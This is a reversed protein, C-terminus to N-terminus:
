QLCHIVQAIEDATNYIHPSLRLGLARRDFAVNADLLAQEARDINPPNVVLTGGRKEPALPAAFCSAPLQEIITQNLLQNHNAIAEVGVQAILRLSNTALAFPAVSPTGGWFRRSDNAYKFHHIDFEFPNEHSFWGVDKPQLDAVLDPDVWLFGAGSGGCLWKVCSGVVASAQWDKLDIPVVGASQAVDVISFITRTRCLASIHDVPIKRSTDFHVHTILATHVDETLAQAWTEVAQPDQDKPLFRLTFGLRQAQQACFGISPFDHECLLIVHKDKTPEPLASIFKNVGSSVNSQPCFAEPSSNFLAALAQQFHEFVQMWASWADPKAQEWPTLFVKEFHNRTTTPMRGVSHNLLYIGDAKSFHQSFDNM